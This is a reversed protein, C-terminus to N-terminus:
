GDPPALGIVAYYGNGEIWGIEFRLETHQGMTVVLRLSELYRLNTFPTLSPGARLLKALQSVGIHIGIHNLAMEACAVLCDSEGSQLRHAFDSLLM